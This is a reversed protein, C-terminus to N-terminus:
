GIPKIKLKQGPKISSADSIGNLDMIDTDTVGPYQKAIDWLTDGSKVTYYEFKTNVDYTPKEKETVTTAPVEKGIMKQKQAFTMSNINKYKGAKSKPVYIVLKQGSRIMNRRINNWYKLDSVRVNYWSSIFGLNDGSKVTYYLKTYDGSPAEPIFNQASYYAPNTITKTPSFFITDKYNLIEKEHEIYALSYELPLKLSYPTTKTAPIIDAKYQPNLDRLMKIPVDLVEAVQMLHLKDMVMITDTAPPMASTSPVLGHEKYYNITYTAGIFAPIHGRTERPLYFYLDWYNHKGGSRKIAKNVNGPGCNYAAIVLIWDGYIDYLDRCFKAAAHTSEIPDLREDVLSNITLGYVRGTPYMFQWLGVARARSVSRPNLASEIISMYKLENPVDYYDFIEDFIPFYYQSLGLMKEISGKRKQTYLEIYNKVISNYSLDLVSPINSLREIYISDPVKGSLETFLSDDDIIDLDNDSYYDVYWLNLMSDLNQEFNTLITDHIDDPPPTNAFLATANILIAYIITNIRKM